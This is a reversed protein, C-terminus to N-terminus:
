VEKAHPIGDALSAETDAFRMANDAAFATCCLSTLGRQIAM